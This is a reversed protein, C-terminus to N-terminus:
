CNSSDYNFLCTFGKIQYPKGFADILCEPKENLSINNMLAIRVQRNKVFELVNRIAGYDITRAGTALRESLAYKLLLDELLKTMNEICLSYRNNDIM